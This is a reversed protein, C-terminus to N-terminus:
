PYAEVQDFSAGRSRSGAAPIASPMASLGRLELEGIVLRQSHRGLFRPRIPVALHRPGGAGAAHIQPDVGTMTVRSALGRALASTVAIGLRVPVIRLEHCQPDFRTGDKSTRLRITAIAIV